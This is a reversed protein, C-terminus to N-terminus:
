ASGKPVKVGSSGVSGVFFKIGNKIPTVQPKSMYFWIRAIGDNTLYLLANIFPKQKKLIESPMNPYLRKKMEELDKRHLGFVQTNSTNDEYDLFFESLVNSKCYIPVNKEPDQFDGTIKEIRQIKLFLYKQTPDSPPSFLQLRDTAFIPFPNDKGWFKLAESKISAPISDVEFFNELDTGSSLNVKM